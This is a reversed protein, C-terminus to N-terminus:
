RLICLKLEMKYVVKSQYTLHDFEYLWRVLKRILNTVGQEQGKENPMDAQIFVNPINLMM